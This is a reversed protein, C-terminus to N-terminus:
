NSNWSIKDLQIQKTEKSYTRQAANKVRGHFRPIGNQAGERAELGNVGDIKLARKPRSGGGCV